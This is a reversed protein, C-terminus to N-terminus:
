SKTLTVTYVCVPTSLKGEFVGNNIKGDLKDGPGSVSVSGDAGVPGTMQDRWHMNVIGNKIHMTSMANNCAGRSLSMGTSSTPKYDGDYLSADAAFASLPSALPQFGFVAVIALAAVSIIRRDM